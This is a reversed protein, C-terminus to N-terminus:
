RSAILLTTKGDASAIAFETWDSLDLNVSGDLVPSASARYSINAIVRLKTVDIGSSVTLLIDEGEEKM